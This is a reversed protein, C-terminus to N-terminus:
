PELPYARHTRKPGFYEVNMEALVASRLAEERTQRLSESLPTDFLPEDNPRVTNPSALDFPEPLEDLLM